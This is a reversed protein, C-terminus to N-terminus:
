VARAEPYTHYTVTLSAEDLVHPGIAEVLERGDFSEGLELQATGLAYVTLEYRHVREDNWPPCPGDYGGYVGAMDADGEFWSTYDNKGRTGYPTRSVEKGRPTVGEADAREEVATCTAPINALLWHYFDTRPRDFEVTVNEQNVGDGYSPVDRDVFVLAFSKTEAPFGSWALHPSRNSGLTAKGDSPVCFAFEPPCPQGDTLSNSTLIM